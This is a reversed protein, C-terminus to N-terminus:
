KFRYKKIKLHNNKIMLRKENKILNKIKFIKVLETVIVINVLNEIEHKNEKEVEDKNKLSWTDIRKKSILEDLSKGIEVILKMCIWYSGNNINIDFYDMENTFIYAHTYKFIISKKKKPFKKDLDMILDQVKIKEKLKIYQGYMLSSVDKEGVRLKFNQTDDNQEYVGELKLLLDKQHKRELVLICSGHEKILKEIEKQDYNKELAYRLFDEYTRGQEKTNFNARFVIGKIKYFSYDVLQKKDKLPSFKTHSYCILITILVLFKIITKM